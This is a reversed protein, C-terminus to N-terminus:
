WRAAGNKLKNGFPTCDLTLQHCPRRPHRTDSAFFAKKWCHILRWLLTVARVPFQLKAFTAIRSRGPQLGLRRSDDNTFTVWRWTSCGKGFIKWTKRRFGAEKVSLTEPGAHLLLVHTHDPQLRSIIQRVKHPTLREWIDQASLDCVVWM